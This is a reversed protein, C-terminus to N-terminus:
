HGLVGWELEITLGFELGCGSRVPLHSALLSEGMLTIGLNEM